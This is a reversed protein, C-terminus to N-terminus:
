LASRVFCMTARRGLMDRAPATDMGCEYCMFQLPSLEQDLGQADQSFYGAEVNSGLRVAGSLPRHGGLCTRVLTSKGAGNEGIVGWRDSWRVTWDLGSFLTEDDFGVSLGRAEIVVDGSRKSAKISAAMGRQQKPAWIRNAELKRM